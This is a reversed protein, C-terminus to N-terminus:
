STSGATAGSLSRSPPPSTASRAAKLREFVGPELRVGLAAEGAAVLEEVLGQLQAAHASEVEGVTVGGNLAGTMMFACIWVHKELM